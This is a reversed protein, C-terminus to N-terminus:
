SLFVKPCHQDFSGTSHDINKNSFQHEVQTESSFLLVFLQHNREINNKGTTIKAM